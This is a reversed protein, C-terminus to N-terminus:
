ESNRNKLLRLAENMKRTEKRYKLAQIVWIIIYAVIFAMVMIWFGTSGLVFWEMSAGICLFATFVLLFHSLTARLISWQEIEYFITSGMSLTGFLGSVAFHLTLYLASPKEGGTLRHIILFILGILFGEFLGIVSLFLCKKLLPKM